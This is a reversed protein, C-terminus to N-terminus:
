TEDKWFWAQKLLYVDKLESYSLILSKNHFLSCTCSKERSLIVYTTTGNTMYESYPSNQTVNQIHSPFIFQKSSIDGFVIM